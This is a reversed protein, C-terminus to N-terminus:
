LLGLMAAKIVASTKNTANLKVLSNGVHFNVTRESIEMILGVESATKGDATWRLVEIERATLRNHPDGYMSTHLVSTMSQNAAHALWSLRFSRSRLEDVSLRHDTCALNLLSFAGGPGHSPQAIGSRLGHKFADQWFMKSGSSMLDQWLVPLVSDRCRTMTPDIFEYNQQLYHHMWEEPYNHLHIITPRTIPLPLRLYFSFYDFGLDDIIQTLVDSVAFKSKANLLTQIQTPQWNNMM